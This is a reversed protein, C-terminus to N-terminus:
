NHSSSYCRARGSTCHHMHSRLLSVSHLYAAAFWCSSQHSKQRRCPGSIWDRSTNSPPSFDRLGNNAPQPRRGNNTARAHLLPPPPPPPTTTCRHSTRISPPSWEVRADCLCEADRGRVRLVGLKGQRVSGESWRAATACRLTLPYPLPPSPSLFFPLARSPSATTANTRKLWSWARRSAAVLARVAALLQRGTAATSASLRLWADARGGLLLM